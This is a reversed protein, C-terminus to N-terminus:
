CVYGSFSVLVFLSLAGKIGYLNLFVFICYACLCAFLV